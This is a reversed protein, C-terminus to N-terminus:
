GQRTALMLLTMKDDAPHYPESREPPRVASFKSEAALFHRVARVDGNLVSDRLSGVIWLM